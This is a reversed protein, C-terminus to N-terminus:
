SGCSVKVPVKAAKLAGCTPSVLVHSGSQPTSFYATSAFIPVGCYRGRGLGPFTAHTKSKWKGVQQMREVVVM